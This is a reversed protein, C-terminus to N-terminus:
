RKRQGEGKGEAINLAFSDGARALHDRTSTRKTVSDILIQSWAAFELARQYVILKEHHFPM